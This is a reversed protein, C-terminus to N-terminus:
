NQNLKVVNSFFSSLHFELIVFGFSFYTRVCVFGIPMIYSLGDMHGVGITSYDLAKYSVAQQREDRGVKWSVM